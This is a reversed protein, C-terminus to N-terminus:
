ANWVTNFSLEDGIAISTEAQGLLTRVYVEGAPNITFVCDAKVARTGSARLMFYGYADNGVPLFTTNSLTFALLFSGGLVFTGGGYIAKFAASVQAGAAGDQRHLSGTLTWGGGAAPAASAIVRVWASGNWTETPCSPLDTRVVTTPIPLVGGPALAALGDREAESSVHVLVDATDAVGKMHLVPNWGDSGVATTIKNWTQATM